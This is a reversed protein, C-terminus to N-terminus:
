GLGAVTWVLMLLLMAGAVVISAVAKIRSTGLSPVALAVAALAPIGGWVFGQGPLVDWTLLSGPVSLIALLLAITSHDAQQTVTTSQSM